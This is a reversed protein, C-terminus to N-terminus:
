QSRTLRPSKRLKRVFGEAGEKLEPHDKEKWAGFVNQLSKTLQIRKLEKRVAEAVVKSRQRGPVVKRLTDLLDEPLLFNAQRTTEM